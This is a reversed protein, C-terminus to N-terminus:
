QIRISQNLPVLDSHLYYLLYSLTSSRTKKLGFLSILKAEIAAAYAPSLCVLSKLDGPHATIQFGSKGLGIGLFGWL